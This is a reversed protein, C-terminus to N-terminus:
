ANSYVGEPKREGDLLALPQEACTPQPRHAEAERRADSTAKRATALPRDANIAVAAELQVDLLQLRDRTEAQRDLEENKVVLTVGRDPRSLVTM